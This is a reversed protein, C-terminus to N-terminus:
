VEVRKMMRRVPEFPIAMMINGDTDAISLTEGLDDSTYRVELKKDIQIEKESMVMGRIEVMFTRPNIPSRKM